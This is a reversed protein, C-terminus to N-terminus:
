RLSIEPGRFQVHQGPLRSSPSNQLLNIENLFVLFDASNIVFDKFFKNLSIANKM